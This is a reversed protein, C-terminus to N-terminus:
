AEDMTGFVDVIEGMFVYHIPEDPKYLMQRVDEPVEEANMKHTYIKRCVFTLQAEEFGVANGLPKPTLSTLGIKDPVDWGSKMGLTLLDKRKEEPFFCVTFYESRLLIDSTCRNERLFVEIIQKGAKPPGWITGMTGWGITMTNYDDPTGATALGWRDNFLSFVDYKETTFNGKNIKM